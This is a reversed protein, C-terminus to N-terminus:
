VHYRIRTEQRKTLIKINPLSYRCSPCYVRISSSHNVNSIRGCHDCNYTIIDRGICEGCNQQFTKVQASVCLQCIKTQGIPRKEQKIRIM